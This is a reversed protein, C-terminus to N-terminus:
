DTDESGVFRQRDMEGWSRDGRCYEFLARWAILAKWQRYGVNELVGHGMLVLVDAPNDYRRFSYVESLIGFWSFLIGVGSTVTLFLVFLTPEVIGLAISLPVLVYGVGEVLPGLGETLAYAPMVFLGIRGYRPNGVMGRERILTDVLGRYWRRRQRGLTPWDNPVQTWVVPEPVFEVRYDRGKETLFRHLRVVLDFDETVSDPNYGGIERVLDTRFLGFAGSIILLGQLRSYGLRGAYFARLYEMEQLGSIFSDSTEVADVQGYEVDCGNAARVSGGTAVMEDPRRLFPEIAGLLGDRDILSDADLACFLSADTFWIGANLADGKGGNDKDIVILEDIIASRYIGQVPASDIDLPLEADIERLDFADVLRELTADTSGDNVVVLEKAGYKLDTLAQVSDVITPAENYAPVIVAVTPFSPSGFRNFAATWRSERVRHRLELLGAVYVLVYVINVLVYFVLILWSATTLLVVLVDRIM